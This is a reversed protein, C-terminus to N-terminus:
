GLCAGGRKQSLLREFQEPPVNDFFQNAASSEPTEVVPTFLKKVFVSKSGGSTKIQGDSKWLHARNDILMQKYYQVDQESFDIPARRTMLSLLGNSISYEKDAVKIKDGSFTVNYDGLFYIGDKTRRLGFVLYLM